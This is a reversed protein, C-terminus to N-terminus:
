GLEIGRTNACNESFAQLEWSGKVEARDLSQDILSAAM